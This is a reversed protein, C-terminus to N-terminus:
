WYCGGEIKGSFGPICSPPPYIWADNFFKGILEHNEWRKGRIGFLIQIAGGLVICQVGAKKLESGIIMGLGGCGIIAIDAKQELTREVVDQIAERYNTIHSPWQAKGNAVAPCYYTQIPIWVTSPPLLTKAENGWIAKAMYTQEESTQAFSSVIAVRKKALHQTWRFSPNIYYPELNRLLISKRNMNISDLLEKENEALEQCWGEAMVDTNALADIYDLKWAEVHTFPFIGSYRELAKAFLLSTSKTLVELETSGNRGILFPKDSSFYECLLKAGNELNM